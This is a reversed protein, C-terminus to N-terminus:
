DGDFHHFLEGGRMGGRQNSRKGWTEKRAGAHNQTPQQTHFITVHENLAVVHNIKTNKANSLEGGRMFLRGYAGGWGREREMMGEM